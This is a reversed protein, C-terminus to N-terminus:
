NCIQKRAIQAGETFMGWFFDPGPAGVIRYLEKSTTPHVFIITPVIDVNFMDTTKPKEDIDIRVIDVILAREQFNKLTEMPTLYESDLYKCYGCWEAMFVMLRPKCESAQATSIILSFTLAIIYKM